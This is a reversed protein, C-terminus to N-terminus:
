NEKKLTIKRYRIKDEAYQKTKESLSKKTKELNEYVVELDKKSKYLELELKKNSPNRAIERQIISIQEELHVQSNIDKQIALNAREVDIDRRTDIDKESSYKALLEANLKDEEIQRIRELRLSEERQENRFKEEDTYRKTETVVGTTRSLADVRINTENPLKDSYIVSGNKEYRYVDKPGDNKPSKSQAVAHASFSLFLVTPFLGMFGKLIYKQKNM